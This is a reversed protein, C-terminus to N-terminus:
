YIIWFRYVIFKWLFIEYFRKYNWGFGDDQIFRIEVLLNGNAHVVSGFVGLVFRPVVSEALYAYM